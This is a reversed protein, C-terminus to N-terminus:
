VVSKRDRASPEVDAAPLRGASLLLAGLFTLLIRSANMPDFTNFTAAM